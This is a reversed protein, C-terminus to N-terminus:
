HKVLDIRLEIIDLITNDPEIRIGNQGDEVYGDLNQSFKAKNTNLSLTRGNIYIKGRKTQQNDIFTITMNVDDKNNTIDSFDSNEISFYYSPFTIDKLKTTISVQDILYKGKNTKFTVKNEGNQFYAPSVDIPRLSSCDPVSSSVIQNNVSVELIGVDSPTCDAFFRLKASDINRYETESVVFTNRSEQGTTDTVDATIQINALNYENTRWFAVGVGSVSFELTNQSSLADKSLEIPAVNKSTIENNYIEKGNLKIILNGKGASVSFSLLFNNTDTLDSISFDVNETKTDFVGNKVYLSSAKKIITAGTLSYLNVSPLDHEVENQPLEELRGPNELLLNKIVKGSSFSSTDSTNDALLEQRIDPPLFLIYLVILLAIVAVLTAASGGSQAKRMKMEPGDKVTVIM